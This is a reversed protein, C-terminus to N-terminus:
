LLGIIFYILTFKLEICFKFFNHLVTQLIIKTFYYKFVFQVKKRKKKENRSIRPFINIFLTLISEASLIAVCLRM